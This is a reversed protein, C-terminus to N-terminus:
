EFKCSKVITISVTIKWTFNMKQCLCFNFFSMSTNTTHDISPGTGTSTTHGKSRTWQFQDTTSQRWRDLGREFNTSRPLASSPRVGCGSGYPVVTIDDIAIDGKYGSGRIGMFRIQVCLYPISSSCYRELKSRDVQRISIYDTFIKRNQLLCTWILLLPHFLVKRDQFLITPIYSFPQSDKSKPNLKQEILFHLWNM